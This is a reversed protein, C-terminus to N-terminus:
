DCFSKYCFPCGTIHEKDAVERLREDEFINRNCKRKKDIGSCVGNNTGELAYQPLHNSECFRKQKLIFESYDM